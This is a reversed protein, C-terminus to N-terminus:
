RGCPDPPPVSAECSAMKHGIKRYANLIVQHSREQRQILSLGSPLTARVDKPPRRRRSECCKLQRPLCGNSRPCTVRIDLWEKARMQLESGTAVLLFQMATPQTHRALKYRLKHGDAASPRLTCYLHELLRRSLGGQHPLTKRSSQGFGTYRWSSSWWQYVGFKDSTGKLLSAQLDALKKWPARMHRPGNELCCRVDPDLLSLIRKAQQTWCHTRLWIYSKAAFMVALCSELCPSSRHSKYSAPLLWEIVLGICFSLRVILAKPVRRSKCLIMSVHKLLALCWTETCLNLQQQLSISPFECFCFPYLTSVLLGFVQVPKWSCSWDDPKIPPLSVPLVGEARPRCIPQVTM